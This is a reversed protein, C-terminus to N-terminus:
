YHPLEKGQLAAEILTAAYANCASVQTSFTMGKRWNEPAEPHIGSLIVWGQGCKGQSVAPTGDPYKAVVEGWGSLQPGDEWYHEESPADVFSIKVASKHVNQNVVGYFDFRVGSTLNIGNHEADGALLAGACIGLYNLGGEVANRIKKTTTAKLGKGMEIYNGGPLILIRHSLLEAESLADLKPSNVVTYPLHMDKLIREIAAVDNASTGTGAFLLIEAKGSSTPSACSQIIFLFLVLPPAISKCVVRLLRWDVSVCICFFAVSATMSKVRFFPSFLVTKM